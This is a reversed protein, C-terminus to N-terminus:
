GMPDLQVLLIISDTSFAMSSGWKEGTLLWLCKLSWLYADARQRESRM